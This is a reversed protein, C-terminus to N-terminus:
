RQRVEEDLRPTLHMAQGSITSPLEALLIYDDPVVLMGPQLKKNLSGTSNISIVERVGLDRLAASTLATTSRMPFYTIHRIRVMGRFSSQGPSLLFVNAKGYKTDVFKEEGGSFISKDQLFITGAIIGIPGM